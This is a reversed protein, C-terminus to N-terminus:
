QGAKATAIEWAKSADAVQAKQVAYVTFTLKPQTKVENVEEKTLSSSVTVQQDKLINFVQDATDDKDVVCYYVGEHGELPTWVNGDIEYNVKRVEKGDVTERFEPWNEETVQVFLYCDESKVKVTAVPDKSINVGPVIHYTNDTEGLTANIDGVTFTNTIAAPKSVLWAVTGGVACGIVLVIALLGVLAKGSMSRKM